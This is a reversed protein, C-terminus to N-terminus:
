FDIHTLKRIVLFGVFDLVLGIGMLINGTITTFLTHMIDWTTISLFAAMFIPMGAVFYASLRQQATLAMIHGKLERRERLTGAINELIDGLNGGVARQVLVANVTLSMEYSDVRQALNRLGDELSAGLAVDQLTEEIEDKLPWELQHAALQCAQIFSFGSRLSTAIALLAGDLQNEL